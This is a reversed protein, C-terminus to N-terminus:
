SLRFTSGNETRQVEIRVPFQEKLEEIHTIVIIREFDDQIARIADVIKDRGLVDQTGFGEDIFLTPLPAGARRALLRSLAIRLAVNIRFNEGGSYTEYSRPGLEDSVLIELTEQVADRSRLATQTELKLHMRNDTMRGLLSNAEEEIEPLASEIILAQIGRRGFAVALDDVISLEEAAQTLTKRKENRSGELEDLRALDRQAAGVEQRLRDADAGLSRSAQEKDALNKLVHPLSELDRGLGELGQREGTVDRELSGQEKQSEELRERALPLRAQAEELRRHRAEVPRLEAYTERVATHAEQDYNLQEIAAALPSLAAQAEEAYAREKLSQEVLALSAEADPTEKAALTAQDLTLRLAGAKQMLPARDSKLRGEVGALRKRTDQERQELRAVEVENERFADRKATGRADYDNLVDECRDLGLETGCLPCTGEGARLREMQARIEDMEERLRGNVSKRGASEGSLSQLEARATEAESDLNDLTKLSEDAAALDAAATELGDSRSRLGQLREAAIRQKSEVETRARDIARELETQSQSLRMFEGAKADLDERRASAEQLRQYAPVIEAADGVVAEDETIEKQLADSRQRIRSLEAERQGLRLLAEERQGEKIELLQRELRLRQTESEQSQLSAERETLAAKVAELETRYEERRGLERGLEEIAMELAKRSERCRRAEERAREELTDYYGLNLIEALVEKRKDPSKITFEDARGQVLFATNVFTDFDMHLLQNIKRQTEPITNATIPLFDDGTSLALELVSRGARRGAVKARKRLVRYLDGAVLFELEVEMEDRGVHILDDTSRTRAALGWLAWTIADLLASKGAGNDGCLCAVHVGDLLLPPVDDQYCMFNRIKLKYPIMPEPPNYRLAAERGLSRQGPLQAARLIPDPGEM